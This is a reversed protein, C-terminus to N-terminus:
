SDLTISTLLKVVAEHGNEAAWSLPTRGDGDKSEVEAGKELLLKVVAEHGNEAARSLPTRGGRGKSELEAGKELLLKVVAEHGNKAACSLPTRGGRDKSELEAGKELLLKVVAEHGNAAARSLPTRGNRGKSELEAGKELLLKVVAEHGNAAAWSLPTRGYWDDTSELEAGKELLLKVVAEYGNEAAQSLPTRGYDDTSELEAGKELLLKVVAEHGKEAARSLPTRGGRGKSELEAGKELLLKVMAEHGNAAAWSLPTRGYWHDKSELGAGKELLLKVVAERGNEAARSLPTRGDDDKSELEAGKELLLKVVAEHGNEAAWSLPTRGGRDKSELEAGKELLLKVVAEHGNEAAWSLPTRGYWHDKFELEAGKELLLKVVAEHGNEAAWSLPTRGSGDKSEVDAGNELLLRVVVEQGEAAARYLWTDRLTSMKDLNDKKFEYDTVLAPSAALVHEQWEEAAYQLFKYSNLYEEPLTARYLFKQEDCDIVKRGQDFEEMGLYRWCIRFVLLNAKDPLVSYWLLGPIMAVFYKWSSKFVLIAKDPFISHGSVSANTYLFNSLTRLFSRATMIFPYPPSSFAESPMAALLFTTLCTVALFSAWTIQRGYLSAWLITSFTFLRFLISPLPPVSNLLYDKASQHVFNLTQSHDDLYVLPECCQYCHKWRGLNKEEPSRDGKWNGPGMGYAMALEDRTLPRRAVAMCRLVFKAKDVDELKIRNLIRQYVENLDGPLNRLKQSVTEEDDNKDLDKLFLSVWLFTGGVKDTLADRVMKELDDTGEEGKYLDRVRDDIFLSLDNNVKASDIRLHQGTKDLPGDIEPRGTILFKINATSATQSQTFLRNLEDLLVKRTPEICEDLADILVYIKDEKFDGLIEVLIRWLANFNDFLGNKQEDFPQQIYRFFKPHQRLLQLLLGRIIATATNRKEDKNDCFYYAFTMGRTIQARGVLEDVLFTSLTTKGIGPNGILRLLQTKDEDLWATYQEQVLIWKCTGEVRKGKRRTAALDDQPDTLFLSQICELHKQPVDSNDRVIPLSEDLARQVIESIMTNIDQHLQIARSDERLGEQVKLIANQVFSEFKKQALLASGKGLKGICEVYCTAYSRIQREQSEMLRTLLKFFCDHLSQHYDLRPHCPKLAIRITTPRIFDPFCKESDGNLLVPIITSIHKDARINLLALETLVHHFGNESSNAEVVKRIKGHIDESAQVAEEYADRIAKAYPRYFESKIYHGLVESGCLVVREISKISDGAPLLCLQSSLIDHAIDAPTEYIASPNYGMASRDSHLNSRIDNLWQILQRAVMSDARGFDSNDHAYVLFMSPSGAIWGRVKFETLIERFLFNTLDLRRSENTPAGHLGILGPGAEDKDKLSSTLDSSVERPELSRGM